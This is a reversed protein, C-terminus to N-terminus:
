DRWLEDSRLSLFLEGGHYLIGGGRSEGCVVRDRILLEVLDSGDFQWARADEKLAGGQGVITCSLLIWAIQHLRSASLVLLLLCGSELVLSLPANAQILINVKVAKIHILNQFLLISELGVARRGLLRELGLAQALSLLLQRSLQIRETRTFVKEVDERRLDLSVIQVGVVGVIDIQSLGHCDLVGM